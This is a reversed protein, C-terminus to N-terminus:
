PSGADTHSRGKGIRGAVSLARRGFRVPGEERLRRVAQHLWSAVRYYAAGGVGIWIAPPAVAGGAPAAPACPARPPVRDVVPHGAAGYVRSWMALLEAVVREPAVFNRCEEGGYRPCQSQAWCPRCEIGQELARYRESGAADSNAPQTNGFLCLTPIGAVHAAYHAPFSDMGVLVDHRHLQERLRALGDIDIRGVEDAAAAGRGAVTVAFGADRLRRVLDRQAAGPYVKLGWGADFHLLVRRTAPQRSSPAVADLLSTAPPVAACAFAYQDELHVPWANYRRSPRCYRYLFGRPLHDRMLEAALAAELAVGNEGGIELEICRLDPAVDGVIEAYRRQVVIARVDPTSRRLALLLFLIDGAHFPLIAATPIRELPQALAIEIAARRTAWVHAAAPEAIGSFAVRDEPARAVVGVAAAAVAGERLARLLTVDAEADVGSMFGLERTRGAIMRAPLRYALPRGHRDHVVLATERSGSRAAANVVHALDLRALAVQPNLVIVAPAPEVEQARRAMEAIYRGPSAAASHTIVLGSRSPAGLAFPFVQHRWVRPAPSPDGQLWAINM